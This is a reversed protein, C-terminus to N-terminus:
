ARARPAAMTSLEAPASPDNGHARRELRLLRRGRANMNEEGAESPLPRTMRSPPTMLWPLPDLRLSM